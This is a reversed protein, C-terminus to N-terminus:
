LFYDDGFTALAAANWPEPDQLYEKMEEITYQLDAADDPEIDVVTLSAEIQAEPFNEYLQGIAEALFASTIDEGDQFSLIVKKGEQFAAAIRDYVKQGDECAICLNDGIAKTVFIKVAKEAQPHSTILSTMKM